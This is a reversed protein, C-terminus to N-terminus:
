EIVLITSVELRGLTLEVLWSGRDERTTFPIAGATAAPDASLAEVSTPAVRRRIQLRLDSVPNVRDEFSSVRRVELNLLHVISRKAQDRVVARVTAPGRLVISSTPAAARVDELWRERGSWVVRGGAARYKEVLEAEAGTLVAPSEVLLVAPANAGAIAEALGDESAVRFQVNIRGLERAVRLSQCDATEVWKRFPLFLVVDARRTTGNLLATNARLFDAMPRAAAVMRTRQNEPWTPWSLYSADHAAAEAMALRMLNPPTHYDGDALTVAVLPKSHGIAHLMEYIPGYEITAGDARARPQSAMDEVVILDEARSMAHIDYAYTRCQAFFAEPSNLSNNCTVIASPNLSRAFTRMEALFNAAITCRFRMFDKPRSTALQRLSDVDAAAPSDVKAGEGTLFRGFKVMCHECYCGQPHVTPNDFFIGDHGSEIQLRVISKEYTRWDPNNM